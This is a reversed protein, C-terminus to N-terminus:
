NELSFARTELVQLCAPHAKGSFAKAEPFPHIDASQHKQAFIVFGLTGSWAGPYQRNPARPDLAAHPWARPSRQRSFGRFTNQDLLDPFATHVWETSDLYLRIFGFKTKCYLRKTHLGGSDFGMPTPSEGIHGHVRPRTVHDAPNSVPDLTLASSHPFSGKGGLLLGRLSARSGHTHMVLSQFEGTYPSFAQSSARALWLLGSFDLFISPRLRHIGGIM